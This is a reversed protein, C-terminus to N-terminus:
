AREATVSAGVERAPAAAQRDKLKRRYLGRGAQELLGIQTAGRTQARNIGLAALDRAYREPSLEVGDDIRESADLFSEEFPNYLYYCDAIPLRTAGLALRVALLRERAEVLLEDNPPPDPQVSWPDAVPIERRLRDLANETM